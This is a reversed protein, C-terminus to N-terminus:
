QLVLDREEKPLTLQARESSSQMDFRAFFQNLTDPLGRDHSIQPTSSKYDTVNKIGRWMSWPNNNEFHGEIHQKYRRKANRYALM